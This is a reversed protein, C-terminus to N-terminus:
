ALELDPQHSGGPCAGGATAARATVSVNVGPKLDDLSGAAQKELLTSDSINATIAEGTM